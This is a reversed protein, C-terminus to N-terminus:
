AKKSRRLRACLKFICEVVLIKLDLFNIKIIWKYHYSVSAVLIFLNRAYFSNLSLIFYTLYMIILKKYECWIICEANQAVRTTHTYSIDHQYHQAYNRQQRSSQQKARRKWISHLGALSSMARLANSMMLSSTESPLPGYSLMWPRM